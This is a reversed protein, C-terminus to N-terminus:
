KSLKAAIRGAVLAPSAPYRYRAADRLRCSTGRKVVRGPERRALRTRSAVAALRAATAATSQAAPSAVPTAGAAAATLERQGHTVEVAGTGRRTDITSAAM